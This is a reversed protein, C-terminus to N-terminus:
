YRKKTQRMDILQDIEDKKFYIRSGVKIEPPLIGCRRWKDLTTTTIGFIQTVKLRSILNTKSKIKEKIPNIRSFSENLIDRVLKQLDQIQMTVILDHKSKDM